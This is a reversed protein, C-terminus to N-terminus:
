YTKIAQCARAPTRSLMSSVPLGADVPSTPTIDAHLKWAQQRMFHGQRVTIADLSSDFNVSGM